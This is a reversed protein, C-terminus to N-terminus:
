GALHAHRWWHKSHGANAIAASDPLQGPYPLIPSFASCCFAASNVHTDHRARKNPQPRHCYSHRRPRAHWTRPRKFSSPQPDDGPLSSCNPRRHQLPRFGNTHQQRRQLQSVAGARERHHLSVDVRGPAAARGAPTESSQEPCTPTSGSITRSLRASQEGVWAKQSSRGGIDYGVEDPFTSAHRM